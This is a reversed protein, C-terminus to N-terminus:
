EIVDGPRVITNGGESGDLDESGAGNDIVAGGEPAREYVAGKAPYKSIWKKFVIEGNPYTVRRWFEGTVGQHASEMRKTVGAALEPNDVYKAAPFGTWNYNIAPTLEITRGDKVGWLEVYLNAGISYSQVLIYNESDNIFRFDPYPDYITADTGIPTYYSVNYGHPRRQTIPLGADIAARFLTTAVQCLGGGYEPITKDGKIVLEPLYGGAANFPKLPDITHWEEGPAILIGSIKVAGTGINHIRNWPSGGFNSVGLGILETIQLPNDALGETKAELTIEPLVLSEPLIEKKLAENIIKFSEEIDLSRGVKPSVFDIVRYKRVVEDPEEKIKDGDIVETEDLKEPEPTIDELDLVANTAEVRNDEDLNKLWTRLLDEEIQFYVEDSGEDELLFLSNRFENIKLSAIVTTLNGNSEEETESTRLSTKKFIYKGTASDLYTGLNDLEPNTEKMYDYSRYVAAAGGSKTWVPWEIAISPAEILALYKEKHIELDAAKLNPDDIEWHVSLTLDDMKVLKDLLEELLGEHDIIRGIVGKEVFLNGQADFQYYANRAPNELVSLNEKLFGEIGDVDCNLPLSFVKPKMAMYLQQGWWKNKGYDIIYENLAVEDIDCYNEQWLLNMPLKGTMTAESYVDEEGDRSIAKEAEEVLNLATSEWYSSWHNALTTEVESKSKLSLEIKNVFVNSMVKDEFYWNSLAQLGFNAAFLFLFIALSYFAWRWKKLWFVKEVDFDVEIKEEAEIEFDVIIKEDKFKEEGKFQNQEQIQNQGGFQNKMKKSRNKGRKKKSM